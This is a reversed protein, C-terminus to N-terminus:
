YKYYFLKQLFFGTAITYRVSENVVNMTITHAMKDKINKM